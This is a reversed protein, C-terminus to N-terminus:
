MFAGLLEYMGAAVLGAAPLTLAIAFLGLLKTM